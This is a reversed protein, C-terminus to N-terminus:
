FRQPTSCVSIDGPVSGTWDAFVFLRGDPSVSAVIAGGDARTQVRRAVTGSGGRAQQEEPLGTVGVSLVLSWAGVLLKMPRKPDCRM